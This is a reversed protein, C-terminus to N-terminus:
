DSDVFVMRNVVVPSSGVSGTYYSWLKVGNSSNLAYLNGDFSGVYVVGNAV